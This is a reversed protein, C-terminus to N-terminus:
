RVRGTVVKSSRSSENPYAEVDMRSQHQRLVRQHGSRTVDDIPAGASATM